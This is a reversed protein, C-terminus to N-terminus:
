VMVLFIQMSSIWWVYPSHQTMAFRVHCRDYLLTLHPTMSFPVKYKDYLFPWYQAMFSSMQWRLCVLETDHYTSVSMQWAVFILSSDLFLFKAIDFLDYTHRPFSVQWKVYPFALITNCIMEWILFVLTMNHSILFIMPTDHFLSRGNSM